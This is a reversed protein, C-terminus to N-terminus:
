IHVFNAILAESRWQLSIKVKLFTAPQIDAVTSFAIMVVTLLTNIKLKSYM